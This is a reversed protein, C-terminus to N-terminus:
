LEITLVIEMNTKDINIVKYHNLRCWTPIDYLVGPDTAIVELTDGQVLDKIKNQTRILPMPCLLRKVDLQYHSM